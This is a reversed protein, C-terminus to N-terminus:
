PLWAICSANAMMRQRSAPIQRTIELTSHDFDTPASTSTNTKRPGQSNLRNPLLQSQAGACRHHTPSDHSM